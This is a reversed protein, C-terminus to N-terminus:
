APPPPRMSAAPFFLRTLARDHVPSRTQGSGEGFRRWDAVWEIADCVESLGLTERDGILVGQVRLGLNSRAARIAALVESTVGFEGDSVILLDAERWAAQRLDMLASEIPEAIDTGGHFSVALLRALAILGGADGDLRTQHVEGPGGFAYVLCGRRADRAARMAELVIGKAVQEAAGAMSSSTDLCVIIPGAELRPQQDLRTEDLVAEVPVRVPHDDFERLSRALLARESLRAAFIRRLRRNQRTDATCRRWQALESALVRELAGARCIGDPEGTEGTVPATQWRLVDLRQRAEPQSSPRPRQSLDRTTRSRGLRAILQSLAPLEKMAAHAALVRTWADAHLMGRVDSWHATNVVGELSGFVALVQELDARELAWQEAFADVLAALAAAAGLQETGQALRDLHWLLSRLLQVGWEAQGGVLRTLGLRDIVAGFAAAAERGPWVDVGQGAGLPNVGAELAAAARELWVLRDFIKGHSNVLAPLWLGRDLQALPELSREISAVDFRRLPTCDTM